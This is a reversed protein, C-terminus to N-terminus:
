GRAPCGRERMSLGACYITPAHRLRTACKCPTCPTGLEFRPAGVLNSTRSANAYLFAYCRPVAETNLNGDMFKPCHRSQAADHMRVDPAPVAPRVSCAIRRAMDVRLPRMEPDAGVRRPLSWSLVVYSFGPSKRGAGSRLRRLPM